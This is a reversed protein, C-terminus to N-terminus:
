SYALATKPFNKTSLMVQYDHSFFNLFGYLMSFSNTNWQSVERALEVAYIVYNKNSFQIM